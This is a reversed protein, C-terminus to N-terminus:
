PIIGLRQELHSLLSSRAVEPTSVFRLEHPGAVGMELVTARQVAPDEWPGVGDQTSTREALALWVLEAAILDRTAIVLRHSEWRGALLILRPRWASALEAVLAAHDPSLRAALRQRPHALAALRFLPRDPTSPSHRPSQCVLCRRSSEHWWNPVRVTEFRSAGPPTPVDTWAEVARQLVGTGSRVLVEVRPVQVRLASTLETMLPNRGFSRGPLTALVEIPGAGALTESLPSLEFARGAAAALSDGYAVAVTHVSSNGVGTGTGPSILQVHGLPM